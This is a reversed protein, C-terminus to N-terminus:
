PCAKCYIAKVEQHILPQIGQEKMSFFSCFREPFKIQAEHMFSVYKSLEFRENDYPYIQLFYFLLDEEVNPEKVTKELLTVARTLQDQHCLYKALSLKEKQTLKAITEWRMLADFDKKRATFDQAEYHFNAALLYYNLIVRAFSLQPIKASGKVKEFTELWDEPQKMKTPFQAWYRLTALHYNFSVVENSPDILHLELFAIHLPNGQYNEKKLKTHLVIQNNILPLTKRRQSPDLAPLAKMVEENNGYATILNRQITTAEKIKMRNLLSECLALLYEVTKVEQIKAIGEVSIEVRNLSELFVNLEQDSKRNTQLFVKIEEQSMEKTEIEYFSNKQFRKYSDWDHKFVLHFELTSDYFNKLASKVLTEIQDSLNEESDPSAYYAVSIKKSKFRLNTLRQKINEFAFEKQLFDKMSIEFNLSDEWSYAASLTDGDLLFSSKLEKLNITEIQNYPITECVVGNKIILANLEFQNASYIAPLEAIAVKVKGEQVKENGNILKAKKAPKLLLGKNINGPFLRNSEECSFQKRDIMDIAIGDNGKEFLHTFLSLSHFNFFVQNGEVKIADSFLQPLTGHEELFKSCEEKKYGELGFFDYPVKKVGPNQFPLSASVLVLIIKDDQNVVAVGFHEFSSDLLNLKSDIESQWEVLTAQAVAAETLVAQKEGGEKMPMKTGLEVSLLNEGAQAYGGEFFLIRDLLTKKNEQEQEHSLRGQDLIYKAQEFAVADLLESSQLSKLGKSNRLKNIIVKLEEAAMEGDFTLQCFAFPGILICAIILLAKKM